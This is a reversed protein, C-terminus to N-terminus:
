NYVDNLERRVINPSLTRSTRTGQKSLLLATYSDGGHFHWELNELRSLIQIIQMGLAYILQGGYDDENVRSKGTERSYHESRAPFTPMFKKFKPLPGERFWEHKLAEEATLRKKLDYTILGNYGSEAVTSIGAFMTPLFKERLRNYPQRAFNCKIGPLKVFEPWIRESPTGLIKFIKDIQDFDSKGNFLPEKAMQSYAKLPSDYRQTPGLDCIKPEVRNRLLLNSTKFNLHLIWNDHQYKTGMFISDITSGVVIKKLPVIEGTKKNRATYVVGYKLVPHELHSAARLNCYTGENILNLREFEDISRCGQLMDIAQMQPGHLTPPMEFESEVEVVQVEEIDDDFDEDDLEMSERKNLERVYEGDEVLDSGWDKRGSGSGISGDSENGKEKVQGIDFKKRNYDFQLEEKSEVSNVSSSCAEVVSYSDHIFDHGARTVVQSEVQSASGLYSFDEEEQFTSAEVGFVTMAALSQELQEFQAAMVTVM